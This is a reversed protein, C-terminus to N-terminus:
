EDQRSSELSTLAKVPVIFEQLWVPRAPARRGLQERWEEDTLRQPSTFEYYSFVGGRALVPAGEIDVVVYIADVAGVAEELVTQNFSYVDAVLGLHRERDPLQQTKLIRFTLSEIEGGIWTLKVMEDDTLREHRLEKRSIDRLRIILERLEKNLGALHETNARLRTLSRDQQTLLGLAAEWFPLNPEVYSLHRPPPPGGEGGGAEAGMPQETYLLLDHKLEAWGGLATSLNRKQWAPTRAFLPLPQTPVPKNLALLMQMTKTYLNQDWSKFGAFQRQLARLTDPYAPWRAAERYQKLLIDQATSNGFTAFVDLGKPFPRPPEQGAKPRLVNTLRSLIEGDFTYRGATFLLKPREVAERAKASAGKVRIRDTGAAVLQQRIAALTAPNALQDLSQGPYRTKLLRLLHTLSRNDEDGVLVDLVQTLTEFSRQGAPTGALAQALAVARLVGADSDLFVPASNLWKVTRFYRRTTDNRTYMGRPKCVAYDFLSDQLLVSSRGEATTCMAVEREAAATYARGGPVLAGTLLAQGVSYYAGAWEAADRALPQQARQSLRQAQSAGQGLMTAVVPGLRQEEVDSLIGNLYKHLLQLVLDTTIFNPTLDYQNQDYIFFLQEESTPVLVFNNRNLVARMPPTVPFDRQNTVYDFGVMAYGNQPTERQKLLEVERAHVRQVFALEQPNLPVQMVSDAPQLVQGTSDVIEESWVPRYWKQKDFYRRATVNLFCYGNRAYVTNRLLLLDLYSKGALSQQYDFAPLVTKAAEYYEKIYPRQYYSALLKKDAAPLVAVKEGFGNDHVTASLEPVSSTPQAVAAPATTPPTTTPRLWFFLGAGVAVLVAAVISLLITRNM